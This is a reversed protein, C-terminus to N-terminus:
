CGSTSASTLMSPATISSASVTGNEFTEYALELLLRQQPDMGSAENATISFFPADFHSVDDKLFYGGRTNISGAREHNPHYYVDPDWRQKPVESHTSRAGTITEWFGEVGGNDGPYRCGIGVICIADNDSM